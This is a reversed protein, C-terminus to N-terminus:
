RRERVFDIFGRRVDVGVLRVRVRDGVDLGRGGEVLKGEVPLRIVRVWTGKDSAGTVLTDFHEGLRSALMLAAASKRMQREVKHAADEQETCHRALDTLEEPSYPSLKKRLAAKLLRQTIVDPFRRNPATSHTYDRVALGFHGTADEGPEQVVYEGRGMMKVIALSLDPFHLPDAHRRKVLFAELARADAERPLNEGYEEALSVIRDWREPTRVVRRITAFGLDNLTRATVENAAIMFDEIMEKARNKAEQHMDVVRGDRVVARAEITEFDLAGREHRSEKLRASIREQMRMQADIGAARAMADPMEGERALWAAVSNYALKAKNQVWARFVGFDGISGDASVVYSVVMALRVEHEGLSTLDTSLREPLMPFIGGSTYVSTTNRRAHRDVPSDKKVLADVDAIAVYVRAADDALEEAVSLQDLDRSDDNDVSAWAMERLDRFDRISSDDGLGPSAPGPTDAVQQLAEPPFDPELGHELMDARALEGLDYHVNRNKGSM